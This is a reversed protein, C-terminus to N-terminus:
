TDLDRLVVNHKEAEAKIVEVVPPPCHGANLVGIGGAFDFRTQGGDTNIIGNSASIVASKLFIGVGNSVAKARRDFLQDRLTITM